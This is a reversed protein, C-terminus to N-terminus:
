LCRFEGPPNEVDPEITSKEIAEGRLLADDADVVVAFRVSIISRAPLAIRPLYEACPFRYFRRNLSKM